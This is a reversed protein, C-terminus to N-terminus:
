MSKQMTQSRGSPSTRSANTSSDKAFIAALPLEQRFEAGSKRRERKVLRVTESCTTPTALVWSGARHARSGCSLHRDHDLASGMTRCRLRHQRIRLDPRACPRRPRHEHSHLATSGTCSTQVVYVKPDSAFGVRVDNWLNNIPSVKFDDLYRRYNLHRGKGILRNARFLNHM